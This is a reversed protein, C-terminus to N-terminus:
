HSQNCIWLIYQKGIAVDLLVCPALGCAHVLFGDGM